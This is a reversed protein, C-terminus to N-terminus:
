HHPSAHRGDQCGPVEALRATGIHAQLVGVPGCPVNSCADAEHQGVTPAEQDAVCRSENTEGCSRPTAYLIEPLGRAFTDDAEAAQTKQPALASQTARLHIVHVIGRAEAAAQALVRLADSPLLVLLRQLGLGRRVELHAAAELGMGRRAGSIPPPDHKARAAPAAVVTAESACSAEGFAAANPTM